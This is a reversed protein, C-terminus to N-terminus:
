FRDLAASANPLYCTSTVNVETKLTKHSCWRALEHICAEEIEPNLDVSNTRELMAQKLEAICESSV